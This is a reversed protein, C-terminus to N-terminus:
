EDFRSALISQLRRPDRRLHITKGKTVYVLGAKTGRPKKVDKVAAVHVDARTAKKLQSFHVALECAALTSEPPPDTKGSTRLIVHSGPYGDLHFFLDNGRALRTTLYDNGEDNRGVWIELGDETRYKKPLLRGPIEKKKGAAAPTLKRPQVSPYHRALLKRIAPRLEWAEILSLDPDPAARVEALEKRFADLGTQANRVELIQQQLVTVGRAVKQYRTFYANLNEVPTLRAELPITVWDGTEFDVAQVESAGPKIEHLLSKLLEGKKKYEEARGAEGLDQSINVAKRDLFDAERALVTEIRRARSEFEKRHELQSYSEEIAQLYREDPVNEWRDAGESPLSGAPDSWKSGIALDRRTKELPRMAHVLRGEYDLLYINSRGGLISLILEFQGEPATLGIHAQRDSDALRLGRFLSRALHAKVYEAFSLREPTAQPMQAIISIRAFAPKCSLLICLDEEGKFVLGLRFEDPQVVRQLKSGTLRGELVGVARRLETMSLM